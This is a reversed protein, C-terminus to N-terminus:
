LPRQRRLFWVVATTAGAAAAIAAALIVWGSTGTGSPPEPQGAGEAAPAAIGGVAGPWFVDQMGPKLNGDKDWVGWDAGQPGEHTV